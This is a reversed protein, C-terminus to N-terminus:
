DLYGKSHGFSEIQENSFLTSSSEGAKRAILRNGSRYYEIEFGDAKARKLIDLSIENLQKDINIFAEGRVEEWPRKRDPRIQPSLEPEASYPISTVARPMTRQITDATRRTNVVIESLAFMMAAALASPLFAVIAGIFFYLVAHGNGGDFRDILEGYGAGVIGGFLTLLCIGIVALADGVELVFRRFGGM